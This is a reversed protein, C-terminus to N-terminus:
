HRKPTLTNWFAYRAIKPCVERSALTDFHLPIGGYERSVALLALTLRTM